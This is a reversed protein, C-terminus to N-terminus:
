MFSSYILDWLDGLKYITGFSWETISDAVHPHPQPPNSGIRETESDEDATEHMLKMKRM